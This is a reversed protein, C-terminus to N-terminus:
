HFQELTCINKQFITKKFANFLLLNIIVIWVSGGLVGTYEYWQIWNPMMALGNGLTIWPWTLDWNLHVFEFSIWFALFSINALKQHVTKRALRYLFFPITMLLTNALIAFVAGGESANWIWWTTTANWVLLGLYIYGFFIWKSQKNKTTQFEIEFLITM